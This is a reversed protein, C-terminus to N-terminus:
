IKKFKSPSVGKVRTFNRYFTSPSIFGAQESIDQLSLKGEEMLSIAYEIRLRNVFTLFTEGYHFRLYDALYKTNIQVKAALDMLGVSPDTFFREQILAEMKAGILEDAVPAQLKQEQQAISRALQEATFNIRFIFVSLAIYFLSFAVTQLVRFWLEQSIGPVFGLLVMVVLRLAMLTFIATLLGLSKGGTNSYYRQLMKGYRYLSVFCFIQVALQGAFATIYLADDLGLMVAAGTGLQRPLPLSGYALGFFLNKDLAPIGSSVSILALIFVAPACLLLADRGTLGEESSVSRVAFYYFVPCLLMMAAYLAYVPLYFAGLRTHMVGSLMMLLGEFIFTYGMYRHFRRTDGCFFLGEGALIAVIAPVAYWFPIM